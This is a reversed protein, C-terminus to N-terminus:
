GCFLQAWYTKGDLTYKGIGITGYGGSIMNQYHGPSNRWNTAAKLPTNNYGGWGYQLNEGFIMSSYNMDDGISYFGQGNPRTHDMKDTYACEMARITALVSLEKDLKLEKVGVEKRYGNTFNVVEIYNNYNNTVVNRAESEMDKPTAKYGTVDLKKSTNTLKKTETGDEYKTVKYTKVIKYKVGYKIDESSEETINKTELVKKENNNPKTNNTNPKNITLTIEKKTENDSSDKAIIYYSATDKLNLKTEKANKDTLVYNCEKNSNDKCSVIFDKLTVKEGEKITINKVELVPSTKDKIILVSNYTKDEYNILVNYTGISIIYNEELILDKNQITKDQNEFTIKSKEIDIKNNFFINYDLKDGSNLTVTEKIKPEERIEPEKVENNYKKDDIEKKIFMDKNLFLIVSIILAIIIFIIIILNKKNNKTKKKNKALKENKM